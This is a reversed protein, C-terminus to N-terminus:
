CHGNALCTGGQTWTIGGVGTIVGTLTYTSDATGDGDVDGDVTIVGAVMDAGLVVNGSLAGPDDTPPIGFSGANLDGVVLAAGGNQRTQSAVEAANKYITAAFVAESFRARETYSQYAPLAVSALIGIIAIVIMLEILTFGHQVKKM